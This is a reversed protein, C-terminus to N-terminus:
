NIASLKPIKASSFSFFFKCQGPNSGPVKRVLKGWEVLKAVQKVCHYVYLFLFFM